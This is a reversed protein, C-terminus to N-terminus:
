KTAIKFAPTEQLKKRIFFGVLSFLFGLLFAFRWAYKPMFSLQVINSVLTALLIGSLCGGVVFSGAFGAKNKGSHEIIYVLGGQFEGGLSIGQLIRAAAIMYCSSIGIAEYSPMICMTLSAIGMITVSSALANKRGHRDGIYGFILAGIPRFIFGISFLDYTVILSNSDSLNSLYKEHIISALLGFTVFDFMETLGALFCSIIVPRPITNSIMIKYTYISM